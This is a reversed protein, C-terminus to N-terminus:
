LDVPSDENGNNKGHQHINKQEFGRKAEPKAAAAAVAVGGFIGSDVVVCADHNGHSKGSRKGSGTGRQVPKGAVRFEGPSRILGNRGLAEVSNRDSQKRGAVGNGADKRRAKHGHEVDVTQLQLTQCREVFVDGIDDDGGNNIQARKGQQDFENEAFQTFVTFRFGFGM